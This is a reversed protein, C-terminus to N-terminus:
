RFDSVSLRSQILKRDRMSHQRKQKQYIFWFFLILDLFPSMQEQHTGYVVNMLFLRVWQATKKEAPKAIARLLEGASLFDAAATPSVSCCLSAKLNIFRVFMRCCVCFFDVESLKWRSTPFFTCSFAQLSEPFWFTQLLFNLFTM